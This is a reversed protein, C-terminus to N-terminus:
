RAGSPPTITTTRTVIGGAEIHPHGADDLWLWDIETHGESVRIETVMSPTFGVVAMLRDAIERHRGTLYDDVTITLM